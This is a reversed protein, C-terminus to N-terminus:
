GYELHEPRNAHINSSRLDNDNLKLTSSKFCYQIIFKIKVNYKKNSDILIFRFYICIKIKYQCYM